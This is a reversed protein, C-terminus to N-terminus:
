VPVRKPAEGEFHLVAASPMPVGEFHIRIADAVQGALGDHTEAQTFIPLGRCSAVFWGDPESSVDFDLDVPRSQKEPAM